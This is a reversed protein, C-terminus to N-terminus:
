KDSTHTSELLVRSNVEGFLSELSLRSIWLM